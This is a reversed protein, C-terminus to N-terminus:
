KLYESVKKSIVKKVSEWTQGKLSIPNESEEVTTFDSLVLPISIKLMYSPYKLLYNEIVQELTLFQICESLNYFQQKNPRGSVMIENLISVAISEVKEAQLM